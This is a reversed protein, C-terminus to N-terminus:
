VFWFDEAYHKVEALSDVSPNDIEFRNGDSMTVIDVDHNADFTCSIVKTGAAVDLHDGVTAAGPTVNYAINGTGVFRIIDGTTGPANETDGYSIDNGNFIFIDGGGEGHMTVTGTGAAQITDRGTGGYATDSGSNCILKDNGAYGYMRDVGNGGYVTDDGNGANIYDDGDGGDIRDNGEGGNAYDNGNGLEIDDNGLEGYARDNAGYTRIYDTGGRGYTINEAECGDIVENSNSGETILECSSLATGPLDKIKFTQGQGTKFVFFDGGDTDNNKQIHQVGVFNLKPSSSSVQTLEYDGDSWSEIISVAEEKLSKTTEYINATGAVVAVGGAATAAGPANGFVYGAGVAAISEKSTLVQIAAHAGDIFSSVVGRVVDGIINRNSTFEPGQYPM